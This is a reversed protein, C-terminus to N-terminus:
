MSQLHSLSMIMCNTDVIGHFNWVDYWHVSSCVSIFLVNVYRGFSVICRVKVSYHVMVGLNERVEKIEEMGVPLSTFYHCLALFDWNVNRWLLHNVATYNCYMMCWEYMTSSALYTDEHKIQGDLALGPKKQLQPLVSLLYPRPLWTINWCIWMGDTLWLTQLQIPVSASEDLFCCVCWSATRRCSIM